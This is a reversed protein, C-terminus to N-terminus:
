LTSHDLDIPIKQQNLLVSFLAGTAGFSILKFWVLDALELPILSRCVAFVLWMVVCLLVGAYIYHLRATAISANSLRTLISELSGMCGAKDGTLCQDLANALQVYLRRKRKADPPALAMAKLLRDIIEPAQ